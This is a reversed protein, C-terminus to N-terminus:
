PRGTECPSSEPAFTFDKQDIRLEDIKVPADAKPADLLFMGSSRSGSTISDVEILDRNRGSEDIM